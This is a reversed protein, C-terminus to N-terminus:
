KNFIEIMKQVVRDQASAYKLQSEHINLEILAENVLLRSKSYFSDNNKFSSKLANEIKSEFLEYHYIYDFGLVICIGKLIENLSEQSDYRGALLFISEKDNVIDIKYNNGKGLQYKYGSGNSYFLSHMSISGEESNERTHKTIVSSPEILFSIAKLANERLSLDGHFKYDPIRFYSETM